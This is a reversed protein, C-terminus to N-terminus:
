PRGPLPHRDPVREGGISSLVQIPGTEPEQAAASGALAMVASVAAAIVLLWRGAVALPVSSLKLHMQPSRRAAPM